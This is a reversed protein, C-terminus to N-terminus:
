GDGAGGTCCTGTDELGLKSMRDDNLEGCGVGWAGSEIGPNECGDCGGGWCCAGAASGNADRIDPLERPELGNEGVTPWVGGAIVRLPVGARGAACGFSSSSHSKVEDSGSLLLVSGLM